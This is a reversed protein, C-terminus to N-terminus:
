AAAWYAKVAKIRDERHTNKEFVLWVAVYISGAINALAVIISLTETNM